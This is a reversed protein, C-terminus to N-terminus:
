ESGGMCYWTENHDDVDPVLFPEGDKLIWYHETHGDFFEVGGCHKVTIM